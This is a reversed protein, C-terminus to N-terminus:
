MIYMYVYTDGHNSFLGAWFWVGVREFVKQALVEKNLRDKRIEKLTDGHKEMDGRFAKLGRVKFAKLGELVSTSSTSLPGPGGLGGPSGALAADRLVM